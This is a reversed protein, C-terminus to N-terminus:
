VRNIKFNLRTQGWKEDYFHMATFGCYKTRYEEVVWAIDSVAVRRASAKGLRKDLIGSAGEEKYRDRLRRFQRESVGLLLGAEECDFEKRRFGEYAVMFRSVRLEQLM